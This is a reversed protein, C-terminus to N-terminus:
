IRRIEAPRTTVGYARLSAHPFTVVLIDPYIVKLTTVSESHLKYHIKFIETICHHKYSVSLEDKV